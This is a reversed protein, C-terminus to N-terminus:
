TPPSTDPPERRSKYRYGERNREIVERIKIPVEM